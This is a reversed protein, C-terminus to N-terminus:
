SIVEPLRGAPKLKESPLIEPLGVLSPLEVSTMVALLEEPAVAVTVTLTVTFRSM